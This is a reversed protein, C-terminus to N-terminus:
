QGKREKQEALNEAIIVVLEAALATKNKSSLSWHQTPSFVELANQETDFGLGEGM